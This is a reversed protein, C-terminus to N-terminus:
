APDPMASAGTLLRCPNNVLLRWLTDDDVGAERLQPVFVELLYAYGAQGAVRLRQRSALDLSLILQDRYGRDLMEMVLRIRVEDPQYALNGIRDYGVFAGRQAITAHMAVDDLCDVHGILLRAPDVGCGTLLDLQALADIGEPTHTAIAVGTKRAAAACARFAKEMLPSIGDAETGIEGIVGARVDSGELGEEIDRILHQALNGISEQAVYEPYFAERWFGTSAIIQVGTRRSVEQLFRPSRGHENTGSDVITALGVDAAARVEDSILDVDDFLFKNDGVAVDVSLHEHCQTRGLVEADLFGLVGQV